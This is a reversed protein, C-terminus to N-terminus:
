KLDMSNRDSFKWNLDFDAIKTGHPRSRQNIVKFFLLVVRRLWMLSQMDNWRWIHIWVQTVTRFCSFQAKGRRGHGKGRVKAKQMSVVETMPISEQFKLSSVLLPVYHFLSSLCVSLRIAQMMWLATQDSSFPYFLLKFMNFLFM